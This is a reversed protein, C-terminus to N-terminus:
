CRSWGTWCTWSATRPWRIPRTSRSAAPSFGSARSCRGNHATLLDHSWELATRLRRHREAVGPATTRFLDLRRGLRDLIGRPSLLPLRAAALELALPLGDLRICLEAVEGANADTIAFGPRAAAGREVFLAVGDFTGPGSPAVGVPPLPLPPVAFVYEEAVGLRARSTVLITLGPAAVLLRGVVPAAELVQEFNDLVLLVERAALYEAVEEAARQPGVERLGIAEAVAGVMLRPERVASLDVFVVGDRIPVQASAAIALRTKGVGGPGTLTVLRVSRRSVLAQLVALEHARGVFSTTSVPLARNRRAPSHTAGDPDVDRPSGARVARKARSPPTLTPDQRLIAAELEQLVPGPEVGLEEVLLRRGERYADLAEAQRGSRHLEELRTVEAQAFAEDRVDALPPGRWEALAQRLLEAAEDSPVGSAQAVLEQFRHLDLQGPGIRLEYGAPCTVL